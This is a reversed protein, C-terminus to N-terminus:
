WLGLQGAGNIDLIKIGPKTLDKLSGINKPNGKRVLIGAAREYLDTRTNSDILGQHQMAFQTLMYEAGGFVIAANRKADEIWNTEPGAIVKIPLM